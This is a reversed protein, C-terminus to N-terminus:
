PLFNKKKIDEFTMKDKSFKILYAIELIGFTNLIMIAIFWYRQKGKAARWLALIKWFLSWITLAIFFYPNFGPILANFDM